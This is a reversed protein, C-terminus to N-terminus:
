IGEGIFPNLFSRATSLLSTSEETKYLIRVRTAAEIALAMTDALLIGVPQGHFLVPSDVGVFIEEVDTTSYWVPTFNNKGPIDKASYFYRVGPM